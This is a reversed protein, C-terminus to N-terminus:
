NQLLVLTAATSVRIWDKSLVVIAGSTAPVTALTVYAGTNPGTPNGYSGTQNLDDAGQLVLSGGTLNMVLVSAGTKFPCLTGDVAGIVHLTHVGSQSGTTTIAAGGKTLALQFTLGSQAVIWYIVGPLLGTPLLGTTSISVPTGNVIPVLGGPITVVGPAAITISTIPLPDGFPLPAIDYPLYIPSQTVNLLQM